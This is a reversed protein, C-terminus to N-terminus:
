CVFAFSEHAAALTPSCTQMQTNHTMPPPLLDPHKEAGASGCPTGWGWAQPWCWPGKPESSKDASPIRSVQVNRVLEGEEMKLNVSTHLTLYFCCVLSFM